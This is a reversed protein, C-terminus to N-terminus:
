KKLPLPKGKFKFGHEKEYIEMLRNYLYETKDYIEPQNRRKRAEIIFPGLKEWVIFVYNSMLDDIYKPNLFGRYVLTGVGEFYSVLHNIFAIKKSDGYKQLFDDHDGYDWMRLETFDNHFEETTYISYVQMLLQAQRTRNANHVSLIYYIVAVIVSVVTVLTGITQVDFM